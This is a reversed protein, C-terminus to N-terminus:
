KSYGSGEPRKSQKPEVAEIVGRRQLIAAVEDPLEREVGTLCKAYEVAHGTKEKLQEAEIRGLNVRFRCLM